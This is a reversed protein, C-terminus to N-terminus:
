IQNENNKKNKQKKKEDWDDLNKTVSSSLDGTKSWVKKAKM